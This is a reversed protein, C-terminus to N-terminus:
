LIENDILRVGELWVALCAVVYDTDSFEKIPQLTHGDVITFYEPEFGPASLEKM